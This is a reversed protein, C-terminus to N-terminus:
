KLGALYSGVKSTKSTVKNNKSTLSHGKSDSLDSGKADIEGKVKGEGEGKSVLSTATGHVKNSKGTLSHGKSAPLETLETAEYKAKHEEDEHEEDEHEDEAAEDSIEGEEPAGEEETEPAEEESDLVTMLVDHLKKALERDLTITVEGEEVETGPLELAEADAQELDAPSNINDSMVDEYLRDFISKNMFTNINEKLKKGSVQSFNEVGTFTEKDKVAVPEQAKVLAEKNNRVPGADNFAKGTKVTEADVTKGPKTFTDKGPFKSQSNKKSETLVTSSYFEGMEVLNRTKNM